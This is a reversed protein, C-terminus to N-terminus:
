LATAELVGLDTVSVVYRTGNPSQMILRENVLELDVGRKHNRADMMEITANRQQEMVFDYRPTPVPLKM